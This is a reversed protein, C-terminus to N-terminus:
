EDPVVSEGFVERHAEDGPFRGVLRQRRDTRQIRPACRRREIEEALADAILVFRPRRAVGIELQEVPERFLAEVRVDRDLQRRKPQVHGLIEADGEHVIHQPPRAVV